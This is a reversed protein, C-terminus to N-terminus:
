AMGKRTNSCFEGHELWYFLQASIDDLQGIVVVFLASVKVWNRQLIQDNPLITAQSLCNYTASREAVQSSTM